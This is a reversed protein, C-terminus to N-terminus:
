TRGTPAVADLVARLTARAEDLAAAPGGSVSLVAVARAAFTEAGAADGSLLRARAETEDVEAAHAEDGARLYMERAVALRPLAEAYRGLAAMLAGTNNETSATLRRDGAKAYLAAAGAIEILASDYLEADAAALSMLAAFRNNHFNARLTLDTSTYALHIIRDLADLAGRADNMRWLAAAENNTWRLREDGTAESLMERCLSLAAASEGRGYLNAFEARKEETIVLM